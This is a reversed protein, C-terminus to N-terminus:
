DIPFLGLKRRIIKQAQRRPVGIPFLLACYKRGIRGDLRYHKPVKTPIKEFVLDLVKSM